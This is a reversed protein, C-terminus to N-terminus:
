NGIPLIYFRQPMLSLMIADGAEETAEIGGGRELDVNLSISLNLSIM